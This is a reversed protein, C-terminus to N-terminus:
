RSIEAETTWGRLCLEDMGYFSAVFIILIIDMYLSPAKSLFCLMTLHKL